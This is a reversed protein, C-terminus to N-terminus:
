KKLEGKWDDQDRCFQELHKRDDDKIRDYRVKVTVVGQDQDDTGFMESVQLVVAEMEFYYEKLVFPQRFKLKLRVGQKLQGRVPDKAGLKADPAYRFMLGDPILSVIRGVQNPPLADSAGTLPRFLVPVSGAITDDPSADGWSIEGISRGGHFHGIANEVSDFAKFVGDLGLTVLTKKLFKSPRALVLEGGKAAVAKHTKILYGLAASNIFKLLHLDLVMRTDGLAIMRDIRESFAPLNFTDFDGTFKLVIVSIEGEDHRFKELKM